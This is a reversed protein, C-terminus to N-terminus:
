ESTVVSSSKHTLAAQYVDMFLFCGQILEQAPKTSLTNQLLVDRLAEKTVEVAVSLPDNPYLGRIWDALNEDAVRPVRCLWDPDYPRQPQILDYGNLLMEPGCLVEILDVEDSSLRDRWRELAGTDFVTNGVGYSTNQLWPKGSGDVFCSPQVMKGSPELGLFRCLAQMANIPDRVLEEYRLRLLRGHINQDAQYHWGSAALKRWQRGLFIWPYCKELVNKSACVARPDRVIQIFRATPLSRALCPIFEDTWVEKFGIMCDTNRGYAQELVDLMSRFIQAFTNGCINNLFPHIHPAYPESYKRIEACLAPIDSSRFPIDLDAAQVANFVALQRDDYYYDALPETSRVTIGVKSTAVASRLTKFFPLFPDSVIALEPHANLMKGLLTTGSRFM